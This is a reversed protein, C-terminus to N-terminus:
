RLRQLMVFVCGDVLDIWDFLTQKHYVSGLLVAVGM